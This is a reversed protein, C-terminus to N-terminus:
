SKPNESNRTLWINAIDLADYLGQQESAKLVLKTPDVGPDTSMLQVRVKDAVQIDQVSHSSLITIMTVYEDSMDGYYIINGNRVLPLGKFTFFNPAKAAKKTM